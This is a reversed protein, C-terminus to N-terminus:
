TNQCTFVVPPLLLLSLTLPSLLDQLPIQAITLLEKGNGEPSHICEGCCHRHLSLVIDEVMENDKQLGKCCSSNPYTQTKCAEVMSSYLPKIKCLRDFSATGRKKENDDDAQLDSIHLARSTTLFRTSSMVTTPFPLQYLTSTRWYDKMNKLKVLGMYIVLSIYCCLDQISIPKWAEKKGAQKKAGYNNTNYVLLGFLDQAETTAAPASVIRRKKDPKKIKAPPSGQM